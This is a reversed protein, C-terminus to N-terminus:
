RGIIVPQKGPTALKEVSEENLEVGLGVGDPPYLCGNEYRPAKVALDNEIPGSVTDHINYLNLPGISEQEIKGMWVTAGLFAAEAACHYAGDETM